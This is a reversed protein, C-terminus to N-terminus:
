TAPHASRLQFEPTTVTRTRWIEHNCEKMFIEAHMSNESNSEELNTYFSVHMWVESAYSQRKDHITLSNQELLVFEIRLLRIIFLIKENNLMNKTVVPAVFSFLASISTHVTKQIWQLELYWMYESSNHFKLPEESGCATNVLQIAIKATKEARMINLM